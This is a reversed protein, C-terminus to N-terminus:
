KILIQFLNFSLKSTNNTNEEKTVEYYDSFLEKNEKIIFTPTSNYMAKLMLKKFSQLIVMKNVQYTTTVNM